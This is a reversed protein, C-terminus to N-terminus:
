YASSCLLNLEERAKKQDTGTYMVVIGDGPQIVTSSQPVFEQGGRRVSIVSTHEPWDIQGISHGMASSDLEVPLSILASQRTKDASPKSTKMFRDLLAHYIPQVHFADSVFLAILTVTAVPLMHVLSGTMEIVLMMSTIPAKVSATLTGAMALVAFTAVLDPSLSFNGMNLYLICRAFISGAVAGVTLIPLFIGGPAGSGFSTATFLMKVLLLIILLGLPSSAQEAFSILSAGGGLALPLTLGVVLAISLAIFLRWHPAVRGYATQLGLLLANMAAGIIGSILGLPILWVYNFLHLQAVSVFHLVPKFGLFIKSMLDATLAATTATLLVTPNFSRYVEELAFMMGSLPASFAASLGAAAGAATFNDREINNKSMRSGIGAATAAGIQISPGERGLSMGFFACVIGATFRVLLIAWWRMRLGWLLVGEVQPIGSGTAMPEWTVLKAICWASVAAVMAWLAIAVPHARLYAYMDVSWANSYAIAARYAVVLLGAGAGCMMGRMAISWQRRHSGSLLEHIHTRYRLRAINRTHYLSNFAPTRASSRTAADGALASTSDLDFDDAIDDPVDEHVAYSAADTVDHVDTADNSRFAKTKTHTPHEDHHSDSASTHATM